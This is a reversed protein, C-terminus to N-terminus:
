EKLAPEKTQRQNSLSLELKIFTHIINEVVILLMLPRYLKLSLKENHIGHSPM